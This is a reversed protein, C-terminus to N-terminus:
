ANEARLRAAIGDLLCDLGFEFRREEDMREAGEAFVAAVHPYDDSALLERLYPGVSRQWEEDGEGAFAREAHDELERTAFGRVYDDVAFVIALRTATDVPLHSV